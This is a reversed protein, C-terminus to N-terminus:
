FFFQPAVGGFASVKLNPGQFHTNPNENKSRLQIGHRRHYAEREFSRGPRNPLKDKMAYSLAKRYQNRWSVADTFMKSWLFTRFTTWIRKFSMRRPPEDALQAAQQRFQNVLNYAVLSTLLEKHFMDVSRARINETDLVVKLNRIDIEIDGRHLYLDSMQQADQPLSTVLYLTLSDHVRVEHLRAELKADRPLNPTIAANM